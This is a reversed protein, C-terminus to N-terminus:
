ALYEAQRQIMKERVQQKERFRQEERDKKLQDLREKQLAYAEQRKAEEAEKRRLGENYRRLEENTLKFEERSKAQRKRREVEKLRDRELEEKAKRKVLEGELMEEKIRRIHAHKTEVLQTKLVKATELKRRAAEEARAQMRLDYEEMKLKDNELWGEEIGRDLAERQKKLDVQAAREELVDCLQMKTHFAKVQDLSQMMKRNATELAQQRQQQKLAEEEADM